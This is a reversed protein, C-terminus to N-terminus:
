RTASLDSAATAYVQLSCFNPRDDLVSFLCCTILTIQCLAADGARVSPETMNVLHRWHARGDCCMPAVQRIRKVTHKKRGMQTGLGFPSDIPEVNICLDRCFTEISQLRHGKGDFNGRGM